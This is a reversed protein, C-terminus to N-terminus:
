PKNKDPPPTPIQGSFMIFGDVGMAEYWLGLNPFEKPKTEVSYRRKFIDICTLRARRIRKGHLSPDGSFMVFGHVFDGFQIPKSSKYLLHKAMITLDLSKGLGTGADKFIDATLGGHVKAVNAMLKNVMGYVREMKKYGEGYDVELEYDVVQTANKHANTLYLYVWFATMKTLVGETVNTWGGTVINFLNVKVRPKDLYSQVLFTAAVAIV